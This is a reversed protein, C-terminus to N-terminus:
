NLVVFVAVFLAVTTAQESISAISNFTQQVGEARAGPKDVQADNHVRRELRHRLRSANTGRKARAYVVTFRGTLHFWRQATALRTLAFYGGDVGAFPGRTLKVVHVRVRGVPTQISVSRGPRLGLRAYLRQSVLLKSSGHELSRLQDGVRGLGGPFLMPLKPPVGLVAAVASGG